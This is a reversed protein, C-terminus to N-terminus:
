GVRGRQVGKENRGNQPFFDHLKDHPVGCRDLIAYAEGLTWETRANLKRNATSTAIGLLDALEDQAYDFERLLGRLKAFPRAM